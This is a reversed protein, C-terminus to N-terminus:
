HRLDSQSPSDGKATQRRCARIALLVVLTLALSQILWGLALLQETVTMGLVRVLAECVYLWVLLSMWQYTYVKGRWLGPLALALPVVKLWLWSGERIPDIVGEWAVGYAIMAVTLSAAWARWHPAIM